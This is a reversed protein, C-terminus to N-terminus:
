MTSSASPLLAGVARKMSRKLRTYVGPTTATEAATATSGGSSVPPSHCVQSYLPM